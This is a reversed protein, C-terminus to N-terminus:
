LRRASGPRTHPCPTTPWSPHGARGPPTSCGPTRDGNYAGHCRAMRRFSPRSGRRQEAASQRGSRRPGTWRRRPGVIWRPVRRRLARFFFSPGTQRGPRTTTRRPTGLVAPEFAPFALGRGLRCGRRPHVGVSRRQLGPLRAQHRGAFPAFDAYVTVIARFGARRTPPTCGSRDHGQQQPLHDRSGEAAVRLRRDRWRTWRSRGTQAM